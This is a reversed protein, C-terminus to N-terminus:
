ETESGDRCTEPEETEMALVLRSAGLGINIGSTYAAAGSLIGTIIVGFVAALTQEGTIDGHLWLVVTVALSTLALALVLWGLRLMFKETAVAHEVRSRMDAQSILAASGRAGEEM